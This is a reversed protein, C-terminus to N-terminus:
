SRSMLVVWIFPVRSSLSEGLIYGFDIHFMRGNQQLLLNHLHRDGLGLIYSIVSYGAMSRVYNEMVAPEVGSPGTPSPRYFRLFAQVRPKV